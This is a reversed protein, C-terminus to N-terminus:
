SLPRAALSRLEASSRFGDRGTKARGSLAPWSRSPRCVLELSRLQSCARPAWALSSPIVSGNPSPALSRGLPRQRELPRPALSRELPRQRLGGSVLPWPARGKNQLSRARGKHQLSRARGLVGLVVSGFLCRHCCDLPWLVSHIHSLIFQLRENPTPPPHPHPRTPLHPLPDSTLHARHHTHVTFTLGRSRTRMIHFLIYCRARETQM